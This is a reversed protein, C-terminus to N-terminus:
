HVNWKELNRCACASPLTINVNIAIRMVPQIREIALDYGSVNEFRQNPDIGIM